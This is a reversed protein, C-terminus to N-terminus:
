GGRQGKESDPYPPMPCPPGDIAPGEPLPVPFSRVPSAEVVAPHASQTAPGLLQSVTQEFRESVSALQEPLVGEAMGKTQLAQITKARSRELMLLVWATTRGGFLMALVLHLQVM